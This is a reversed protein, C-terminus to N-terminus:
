LLRYSLWILSGIDENDRLYAVMAHFNNLIPVGRTLDFVQPIADGNKWRVGSMVNLGQFISQMDRDDAGFLNLNMVPLRDIKQAFSGGLLDNSVDRIDEENSSSDTLRVFFSAFILLYLSTLRQLGDWVIWSASHYGYPTDGAFLIFQGM